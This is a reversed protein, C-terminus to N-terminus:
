RPAEGNPFILRSVIVGINGFGIVFATGISKRIHGTFNLSM